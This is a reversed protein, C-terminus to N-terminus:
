KHEHKPDCYCFIQWCYWCHHIIIVDKRKRKSREGEFYKMFFIDVELAQLYTFVAKYNSM